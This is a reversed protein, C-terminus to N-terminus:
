ISSRSSLFGKKGNQLALKTWRKLWNKSKSSPISAKQTKSTKAFIPPFTSKQTAWVM